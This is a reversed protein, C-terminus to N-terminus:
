VSKLVGTKGNEEDVLKYMYEPALGRGTRDSSMKTSDISVKKVKKNKVLQNLMASVVNPDIGSDSAINARTATGGHNRLSELVKQHSGPIYKRTKPKEIGISELVKSILQEKIDEDISLAEIEKLTQAALNIAKITELQEM